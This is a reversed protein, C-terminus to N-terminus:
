KQRYNPLLLKRIAKTLCLDRTTFKTNYAMNEKKKWNKHLMHIQAPKMTPRQPTLSARLYVSILNLNVQHHNHQQQHHYHHSRRRHSRQKRKNFQVRLFSLKTFAIVAIWSGCYNSHKNAASM